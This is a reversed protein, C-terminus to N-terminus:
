GWSLYPCIRGWMLYPCIRGGHREHPGCSLNDSRAHNQLVRSKSSCRQHGALSILLSGPQSSFWPLAEFRNMLSPSFWAFVMWFQYHACAHLLYLNKDFIFQLKVFLFPFLFWWPQHWTKNWAQIAPPWWVGHTLETWSRLVWLFHHLAYCCHWGSWLSM